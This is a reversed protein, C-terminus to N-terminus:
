TDESVIKYKKEQGAQQLLDNIEKKLEIMRLERGVVLNHFREMDNMKQKLEAEMKKRKTIDSMVIRCTKTCDPAQGSSTSPAQAAVATLHAWFITGDKKLMRMECTQPEGTEFLKERHLYYIDQDEKLIFSSIPQKILEDRTVDFLTAATLNTEMILGTQSVTCYGVPALDYLDFYRARAAALESQSTRLEENQMELEIQHVRLEHLLRQTEEPSMTKRDHPSQAAKEEALKRLSSVRYINKKEAM